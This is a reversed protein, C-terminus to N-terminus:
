GTSSLATTPDKANGIPSPWEAGSANADKVRDTIQVHGDADITAVDGTDFYGDADLIQGGEGRFYGAAIWPGRVMLHGSLKGDRPLERGEDDTIRMEVGFVPRGRGAQAELRREPARAVQRSPFERVTGLSSTETMGWAHVVRADFESEFRAYMARPAASGGIVVRELKLDNKRETGFTDVHDFVRNWVAPAGLALTVGETRMLEYLSRGDLAPGPMVLKAGCMAGAYPMGWANGHFMPVALLVSEAASVALGDAACAAYSQLLTSRHSYLVGRPQGPPGSIYCLSSATNEDLLPWEYHSDQAGVIEEYCLLNPLALAPMHARDTMAVFGKVSTLASALREVLPAFGRDFFLYADEAHSAICAIEDPTLRPDIAHLVAGMGPVGFCLEMHRYGNSALTAVRDGNRVGLAQLAKALQKTRRHVDGWTCRHVRGEATRTVIEADPHGNRAHEILASILLPRDQMLAKM